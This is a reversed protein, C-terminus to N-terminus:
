AISVPVRITRALAVKALSDQPSSIRFRENFTATAFAIRRSGV